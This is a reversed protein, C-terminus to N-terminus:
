RGAYGFCGALAQGASKAHHPAPITPMKEIM